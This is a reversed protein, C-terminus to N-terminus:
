PASADSPCPADNRMLGEAKLEHWLDAPIAVQLLALNQEVEARTRAGPIVTAVAPHGYPFQLAAAALPVGHRGCVAEIRRVRDLVAPPALGYDYRAGASAGTALIGSNFVGGLIVGIKRSQGATGRRSSLPESRM